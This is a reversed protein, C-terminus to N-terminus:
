RVNDADTTSAIRAAKAFIGRMGFIQTSALRTAPTNSSDQLESVGFNANLV